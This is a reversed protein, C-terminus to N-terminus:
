IDNEIFNKPQLTISDSGAQRERGRSEALNGVIPM